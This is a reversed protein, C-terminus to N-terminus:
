QIEEPASIDILNLTAYTITNQYSPHHQSMIISCPPELQLPAHMNFAKYIQM